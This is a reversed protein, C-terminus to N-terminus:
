LWRLVYYTIIGGILAAGAFYTSFHIFSKIKSIPLEGVVKGTQGNVAIRYNKNKYKLNLLYVPLLVYKVSPNVLKFNSNKINASDFESACGLFVEEASNKMRESARPLSKDPDEDFRDALFGSLYAPNFEKMGKYDFPELADMLDDDMKESGDVPIKSFRMEGDLSVLYHKTETYDYNSDSYHRVNTTNINAKGDVGSDFLWFPVYVGTIKGLKHTAGFDNPLLKKGKFHNQVAQIAADKDVSFPIIANPKISGSLQESIILENDCYPCHTAAATGDTEIAAGCFRCIYVSTNELKEDNGNLSKKYDGWDFGESEDTEKSFQEVAELEFENSCSHCVLKGNPNYVLPSGCAPCKYSVTTDVPM